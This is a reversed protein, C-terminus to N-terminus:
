LQNEEEDAGESCGTHLDGPPFEGSHTIEMDVRRIFLFPYFLIPVGILFLPHVTVHAPVPMFRARPINYVQLINLPAMLCDTSLPAGPDNLQSKDENFSGYATQQM